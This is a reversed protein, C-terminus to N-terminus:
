LNKSKLATIINDNGFNEKAQILEKINQILFQEIEVEEILNMSQFNQYFHLYNSLELKNKQFPNFIKVKQDPKFSSLKNKIASRFFNNFKGIKNCILSM